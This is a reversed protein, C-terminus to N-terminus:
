QLCLALDSEGLIQLNGHSSYGARQPAVVDVIVDKECGGIRGLPRASAADFVEAHITRQRTDTVSQRTKESVVRILVEDIPVIMVLVDANLAAMGQQKGSVAIGVGAGRQEVLLHPVEASYETMAHRADGRAVTEHLVSASAAVSKQPRFRFDRHDLMWQAADQCPVPDAEQRRPRTIRFVQAQV